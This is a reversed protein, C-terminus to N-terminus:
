NCIVWEKGNYVYPVTQVWEKGNYIYPISQIWEKGNYIKVSGKGDIKWFAKLTHDYESKLTDTPQVQTKNYYWGLFKFGKRELTPFVNKYKNYQDLYHFKSDDWITNNDSIIGSNFDLSVTIERLEWGNGELRIQGKANIKSYYLNSVYDRTHYVWKDKDRSIGEFYYGNSDQKLIYYQAVSPVPNNNIDRWQCFM